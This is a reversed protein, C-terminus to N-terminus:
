WWRAASLAVGSHWLSPLFPLTEADARTSASHLRWTPPVLPKLQLGYMRLLSRLSRLTRTGCSPMNLLDASTLRTLDGFTYFANMACFNKVHNSVTALPIPDTLAARQICITGAKGRLTALEEIAQQFAPGTDERLLPRALSEDPLCVICYLHLVRQEMVGHTALAGCRCTPLNDLLQDVAQTLKKVDLDTDQSKSSKTM